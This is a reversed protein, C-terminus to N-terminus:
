VPDCSQTERIAQIIKGPHSNVFAPDIGNVIQPNNEGGANISYHKRGLAEAFKEAFLTKGVGPPGILCLIKGQQDFQVGKTQSYKQELLFFKAEEKQQTFGKIERFVQDIKDNNTNQAFSQSYGEAVEKVM